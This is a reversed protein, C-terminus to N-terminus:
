ANAISLAHNVHIAVRQLVALVLVNEGDAVADRTLRRAGVSAGDLLVGDYLMVNELVEMTLLTVSDVIAVLVHRGIKTSCITSAERVEVVKLRGARVIANGVVTDERVEVEVVHHAILLPHALLVGAESLALARRM